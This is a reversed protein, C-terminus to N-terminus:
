CGLCTYIKSAINLTSYDYYGLNYPLIGLDLNHVFFAINLL